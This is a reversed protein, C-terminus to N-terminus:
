ISGITECARGVERAVQQKGEASGALFPAIDVIPITQQGNSTM